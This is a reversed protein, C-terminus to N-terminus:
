LHNIWFSFWSMFWDMEIFIHFWLVYATLGYPVRHATHPLKCYAGMCLHAYTTFIEQFIALNM